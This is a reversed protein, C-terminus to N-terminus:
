SRRNHDQAPWRKARKNREESYKPFLDEGWCERNFWHRAQPLQNELVLMTEEGGKFQPRCCFGMLGRGGVTTLSYVQKKKGPVPAETGAAKCALEITKLMRNISRARENLPAAHGAKLGPLDLGTAVEFDIALEANSVEGETWRM